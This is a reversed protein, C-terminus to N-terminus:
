YNRRLENSCLVFLDQNAHQLVEDTHFSKLVVFHLVKQLTHVAELDLPCGATVISLVM